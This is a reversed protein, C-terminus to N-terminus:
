PTGAALVIKVGSLPQDAVQLATKGQHGAADRAVLVLSGAGMRPLLFAGTSDAVVSNAPNTGLEAYGYTVLAGPVPASTHDLVWGQVPVGMFNWTPVVGEDDPVAVSAHYEGGEWYLSAQALGPVANEIAAFGADDAQGRSPQAPLGFLQSGGGGSIQLLGGEEFGSSAPDLVVVARAAPRGGVQLFVRVSVGEIPWQLDVQQGEEVDLSRSCRPSLDTPGYAELRYPGPAVAGFAFTGDADAVALPATPEYSQIKLFLRWGAFHTGRRSLLRGSVNGSRELILVGADADRDEVQVRKPRSSLGGCRAKLVYSGEPVGTFAFTGDDDASAVLNRPPYSTTADAAHLMRELVVEGGGEWTEGSARELRGSVHPSTDFRIVGLDREENEQLTFEESARGRGPSWALLHYAGPELGGIEFSGDESLPVEQQTPGPTSSSAKKLLVRCDEGGPQPGYGSIFGRILAGRKLVLKLDNRDMSSFPGFNAEKYNAAQVHLSWRGRPLSALLFRGRKDTRARGPAPRALGDVLVIAREVPAGSPSLVVGGLRLGRKLMVEVKAKGSLEAPSIWAAEFGEAVVELACSDTFPFVPLDLSSTEKELVLPVWPIPPLNATLRITVHDPSPAGKELHIALRVPGAPELRVTREAAGAWEHLRYGEALVWGSLAGPPSAFVVRGFPNSIEEKLGFSPLRTTAIPDRLLAQQATVLRAGAVCRGSSDLIRIEGPPAPVVIVSAEPTDGAVAVPSAAWPEENAWLTVPLGAPLSFTLRGKADTAQEGAPAPLLPWGEVRWSLHIGPVRKGEPTLAEVRLPRGEPLRAPYPTGKEVKM